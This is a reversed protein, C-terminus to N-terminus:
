RTVTTAAPTKRKLLRCVPRVLFRQREEKTIGVALIVAVASAGALLGHLILHPWDRSQGASRIFVIAIALLVAVAAPRVCANRVFDRIKLGLVRQLVIPMAILDIAVSATVIAIAVGVLGYLRILILSLTLNM